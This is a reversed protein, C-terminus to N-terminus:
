PVNDDREVKFKSNQLGRILLKKMSRSYKHQIKTTTALLFLPFTIKLASLGRTQSLLLIDPIAKGTINILM